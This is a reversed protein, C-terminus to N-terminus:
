HVWNSRGNGKNKDVVKLHSPRKRVQRQMLRSMKWRVLLNNIGRIYLVAAGMAAFHPIYHAPGSLLAFIATGAVTLIVLTRGAVPLVFYLLLQRGPYLTAWAIILGEVVPWTSLYVTTQVQPWVVAVLSTAVAAAAGVGAYFGLFRGPGWAHFLDRGLFALILVSFILGLPDLEFFCWTVLRWIQGAFVLAPVFAVAGALGAAVSRSAVAAVISAAVLFGGLYVIAAPFPAGLIFITRSWFSRNMSQDYVLAHRTWVVPTAFVGTIERKAPM